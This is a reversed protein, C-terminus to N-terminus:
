WTPVYSTLTKMYNAREFAGPDSVALQSLSGRAQNVSEYGKEDLWADLGDRVKTLQQPGNRLLASAMMTVTAGALIAKIADEAEHVGSTAALDPTIRGYLIAIWRLVLRLEQRTSLELNPVVQLTELDLDPQYFRNFLVLGDAGAEGLRRAMSGMASFYPGIKVALPIEIGSRVVEVLHLYGNEVEAATEEVGAAVRYINLELADVGEDALVRAYLTWGGSLTGNLSAIVPVRTEAKARRVLELYHDPGTNYGDLLPFYGSPAEGFAGAGLELGHQIAMADHEIQEEFLSPLVIASAGAEVMALIHDIDGTLPSASPVVPHALSLGLYSTSLDVTM